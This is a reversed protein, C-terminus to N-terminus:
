KLFFNVIFAMLINKKQVIANINLIMQQIADLIKIILVFANSVNTMTTSIDIAKKVNQKIKVNGMLLLEMVNKVINLKIMIKMILKSMVEVIKFVHIIKKIIILTKVIYVFIVIMKVTKLVNM